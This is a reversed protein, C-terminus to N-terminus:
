QLLSETGIREFSRIFLKLWPVDGFLANTLFTVLTFVVLIISIILLVRFMRDKNEEVWIAFRRLLGGKGSRGSAIDVDRYIETFKSFVARENRRLILQRLDWRLNAPKQQFMFVFDSVLLRVCDGEVISEDALSLDMLYSLYVSGDRSINVQEQSMALYLLPWPLDATMCAIIYNKCIEECKPIPMNQGMYFRRLPRAAVYPNVILFKGGDSFYHIQTDEPINKAKEYIRHLRAIIEHDETVYVSYRTREPSGLDECVVVKGSENESVLQVESLRLNRSHYVM